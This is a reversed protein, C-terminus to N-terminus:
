FHTNQLGLVKLPRPLLCFTGCNSVKKTYMGCKQAGNGVVDHTGIEFNVSIKFQM